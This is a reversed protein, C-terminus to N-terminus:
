SMLARVRAIREPPLLEAPNYGTDFHPVGEPIPAWVPRNAVFIAADPQVASPDDLTGVRIAAAKRGLRAYYSWVPTGCDACRVV